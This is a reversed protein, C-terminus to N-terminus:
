IREEYETEKFVIIFKTGDNRDLTITGDLQEVLNNVLQLGLSDTEKFDIDDPFGVGNDAITLIYNEGDPKLEIDVKYKGFELDQSSEKLSKSTKFWPFAHKLCNTVLENIILGCPISTNVDFFINDIKKHMKIMNPSIKYNYFLSETLDDVYDGFNIKMLCDSKYLKEHIMAMSKVRNQSETFINLAEDDNIYSSQLSLLSSIIQLNNKVRHHIERLLVEKEKLSAKINREAEKIETIDRAAAFVGIVDDNKDKYVSANYSVPIVDGDKNKIELEYNKVIGDNFVRQYGERAKKSETFYDSFDTEILEKRSYGTIAETASNVDTIKGDPGITVLPDLSAEILGRHYINARKIQKEAKKIKTIDRIIFIISEPNEKNDKIISLNLEGTFNTSDAKIFEYVLNHHIKGELAKKVDSEAKKICEPAIFKSGNKGIVDEKKDFGYLELTKPSVFTINGKLDTAIIAEPSAKILAKYKEKSEKLSKELKKLERIDIFSDLICERGKLTIPVVSKIIPIRENNATLLIRESNDIEQNLDTIPCKGKEIPCIFDHCTKGIIEYKTAGILEIAAKNVDIIEKTKADIVVIGTQITALIKKMYNESEKLANEAKKRETIDRSVSLVLKKGKLTILHSNIEMPIELGEKTIDKSEFTNHEKEILKAGRKFVDDGERPSVIDKPTMKLFEDRSYGFTKCAVDNVEIFKGPKGDDSIKHLFISDNASNFINRFKEESEKIENEAKMRETIDRAISLGVTNNKLKFIHSSIEIPIKQGDKSLLGADFIVIEGNSMKEQIEGNLMKEQTENMKSNDELSTIDLLTLNCMEDINYGLKECAVNNVEIFNGPMMNETLHYLFIMDNANNFVERFKEESEKIEEEAKKRETIDAVLALIGKKNGNEDIIFSTEIRTYIMEGDKKIFEIDYPGKLTEDPSELYKKMGEALKINIFSSAHKESMESVTYGLMEAMRPNVFTIIGESDISGIGEHANEVLQRYKQESERLAKRSKKKDTIDLLSVLSKNTGPIISVTIFADKINGNKDIFQSEYNRPALNPDVRRLHQYENMKELNDKNPIFETWSKKGELEEKSYGTFNECESNILSITTDEEVILTITGTNEFITRYYNESVKIAEQAKKLNTIDRAIGVIRYLEGSENFIPFGKGSIWRVENDPRIIRYELDKNGIYVNQTKDFLMNMARERDDPHISDIWSKPNEYLSKCSLGWIEEYAPSIYIVQNMKIDIIWFVEEINEAIERFKEESEKLKDEAKKRNTIDHSIIQLGLIEEDKELLNAYTEVYHIQSDKDIFRSEYPEIIEGNLVKSVKKLHLPMDEEPLIKLKTFHEGILESAKLGTNNLAAENVDMLKGDKGVIIINDPSSNFLARYRGESKKLKEKTKVRETIDRVIAMLYNEENIKLLNLTVETYLINGNLNKHIWEFHQQDGKQAKNIYKIAKEKSLEDNLQYKPSFEYPTKGIIEERSAGYLEMAKSNCDMFKDEDLIFIGEGANDFLAHYKNESEKLVEEAKKQNTVDEYITVIEGSPLKYIYNERWGVIRQDEYFSAPFREPTGTKWVRQLVEFIGFEKVKPFLKLLSKGIVEEKKLNEIKAAAKNFDKFIFDSGDSKAEYVAVGSNMNNFLERFRSESYKLEKEVKNRKSIDIGIIALRSIKGKGNLIPYIRLETIKGDSKDEFSVIKGTKIAEEICKKRYEAKDSSSISYINTNIVNGLKNETFKNIYKINGELDILFAPENIANLFANLNEESDILKSEMKHKYLGTEIASKLDADSFPKNIYGHPNTLKAKELINDDSYATLYIIPINFQKKIKETAEIGDIEGKLVIDMLILDPELEATKEIAKDGCSEIALVSYGLRELKHKIALATISEDEIILIRAGPM